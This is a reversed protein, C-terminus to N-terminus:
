SERNENRERIKSAMYVGEVLRRRLIAERQEVILHRENRLREAQDM